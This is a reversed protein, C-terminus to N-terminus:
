HIDEVEIGRKDLEIKIFEAARLCKEDKTEKYDKMANKYGRILNEDPKKSLDGMMRKLAKRLDKVSNTM